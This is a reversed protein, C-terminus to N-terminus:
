YRSWEGFGKYIMIRQIHNYQVVIDRVNDNNVDRIEVFYDRRWYQNRQGEKEHFHHPGMTLKLSNLDNNEFSLLFIRAVSEFKLGLSYGEDLFLVLVKVSPSLYALKIKYLSSSSGIAPLKGEFIKTQSMSRIEIWDVGDRKQPQIIEEVGDGNLDIQYSAGQVNFQHEFVEGMKQTFKPLDGNLIQRYYREDQAHSSFTILLICLLTLHQM